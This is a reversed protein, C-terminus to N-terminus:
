IKSKCENQERLQQNRDDIALFRFMLYLVFSLSLRTINYRTGERRRVKGRGLSIWGSLCVNEGLGRIKEERIAKYGVEIRKEKALCLEQWTELGDTCDYDRADMGKKM